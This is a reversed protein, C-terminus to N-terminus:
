GAFRGILWVILVLAFGFALVRAIRTGWLEIRDGQDADRAAFHDRARRASQAAHPFGIDGERGIQELVRRAEKAREENEEKM